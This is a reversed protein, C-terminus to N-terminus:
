VNDNGTIGMKERWAHAKADPTSSLMKEYQEKISSFMTADGTWMKIFLDNMQGVEKGCAASIAEEALTLFLDRPLV